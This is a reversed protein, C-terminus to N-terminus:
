SLSHGPETKKIQPPDAHSTRTSLAYGSGLAYGWFRHAVNRRPLAMAECRAASGDGM